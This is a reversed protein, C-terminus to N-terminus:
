EFNLISKMQVAIQDSIEKGKRVTETDGRIYHHQKAFLTMTEVFSKIRGSLQSGADLRLKEWANGVTTHYKGGVGCYPICEFFRDMVRNSPQKGEALALFISNASRFMPSYNWEAASAVHKQYYVLMSVPRKYDILWVVQDVDDNEVDMM